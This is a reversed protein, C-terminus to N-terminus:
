RKSIMGSGGLGRQRGFFNALDRCTELIVEGNFLHKPTRLLATSDRQRGYPAPAYHSRRHLHSVTHLLFCFGSVEIIKTAVSQWINVKTMWLSRQQIMM